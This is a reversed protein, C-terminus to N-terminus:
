HIFLSGFGHYSVGPLLGLDDEDFLHWFDFIMAPQRMLGSLERWDVASFAAHNNAIIVVDADAVAEELREVADVDLFARIATAKAVFDFARVASPMLHRRVAAVIPKAMSGRFDDTAPRGKFAVGLIAVVPRPHVGTVSARKEAFNQIALDPQQENLHRGALAIKPLVAMQAFSDALIHTDKELCPGGVPGPLPLTTRPYGLKSAQIVEKAGIGVADCLLAVENSFAFSLDRYTNDVLKAMEAAASRSVRVITPTLAAFLHAARERSLEDDAGVVQPLWRLETLAQGEVTREPCFALCFPKGARELIPRVVTETTGVRVTSRLIVLADDPMIKAVQAAVSTISKLNCRRLADLPTGVTIIYVDSKTHEGGSVTLCGNALVQRLKSELRPEFFHPRGANLSEVLAPNTEIGSVRFGVQALTVALTLGVYGLGVIEVSPKQTLSM